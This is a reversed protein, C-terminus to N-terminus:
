RRAKDRKDRDELADKVGQGRPYNNLMMQQLDERRLSDSHLVRKQPKAQFPKM